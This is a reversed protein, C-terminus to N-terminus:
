VAVFSGFTNIIEGAHGQLLILRTSAVNLSLRFLTVFLLLSPFTSLELSEKTCLTIILVSISLSISGALLVDLLFTPLPVLLTVLVMMVGGALIADSYTALGTEKMGKITENGTAM